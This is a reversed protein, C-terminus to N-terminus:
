PLIATSIAVVGSQAQLKRVPPVAHYVVCARWIPTIDNRSSQCSDLKTGGDDSHREVPAAPSESPPQVVLRCVCDYSVEVVSAQKIRIRRRPSKDLQERPNLLLDPRM